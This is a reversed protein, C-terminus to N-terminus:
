RRGFALRGLTDAQMTIVAQRTTVGTVIPRNAVTEYAYGTVTATFSNALHVRAWGYHVKGKVLFKLGLYSVHTGQWQGYYSVTGSNNIRKRVLVARSDGPQFPRQGDVKRNKRVRVACEYGESQIAWIRNSPQAPAAKLSYVEWYDSGLGPMGAARGKSFINSMQFDAIGDHNLDLMVPGANTVIDLHAPTYVVKALASPPTLALLGVGAAGAALSYANLRSHLSAPLNSPTRPPGFATQM